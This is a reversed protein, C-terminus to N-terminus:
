VFMCMCHVIYVHVHICSSYMDKVYVTLVTNNSDNYMYM